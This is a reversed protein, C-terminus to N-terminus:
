FTSPKGFRYTEMFETLGRTKRRLNNLEACLDVGNSCLGTGVQTNWKRDTRTIVPMEPNGEKWAKGKLGLGSVWVLDTKKTEGDGWIIAYLFQPDNQFLNRLEPNISYNGLYTSGDFFYDEAKQIHSNFAENFGTEVVYLRLPV